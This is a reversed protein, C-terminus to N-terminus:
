KPRSVVKQIVNLSLGFDVLISENLAKTPPSQSQYERDVFIEQMLQEEESSGLVLYFYISNPLYGKQTIDQKGVRM